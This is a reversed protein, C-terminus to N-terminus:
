KDTWEKVFTDFRETLRKELADLQDTSAYQVPPPPPEPMWRRYIEPEASGDMLNVRKIYIEGAADNVYVTASGDFPIQHARMEEYSTVPICAAIRKQPAPQAYRMPQAQQPYGAAQQYGGPGNYYGNQNQYM